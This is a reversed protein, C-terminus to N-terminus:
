AGTCSVDDINRNPVTWVGNDCVVGLTDNGDPLLHGMDCLYQSTAGFSVNVSIVTAHPIM